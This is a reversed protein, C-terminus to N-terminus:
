LLSPWCCAVLGPHLGCCRSGAIPRTGRAGAPPGAPLRCVSEVTVLGVGGRAREAYHSLLEESVTGDEGALNTSIPPMILRNKLTMTGISGPEFLTTFM